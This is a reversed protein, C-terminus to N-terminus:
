EDAPVFRIQVRCGLARAIKDLTKVNADKEENELRSIDGQSVGALEALETQSMKRNARTKFIADAVERRAQMEDVYEAFEPDNMQEQWFGKLDSM